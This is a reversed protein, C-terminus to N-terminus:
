CLYHNEIIGKINDLQYIFVNGSKPYKALDSQSLGQQASSVILWDLEPGGIAVCSPHPIPVDLTLNVKGNPAYRKVQAGGWQANWLYNDADICSGDPFHTEQTSVLEDIEALKTHATPVKYRKITHTLTDTHYFIGNHLDFCLSNSIKLGNLMAHCQQHEDILYLSGDNSSLTENEVMTGAWFRGQRDVRGDNFRNGLNDQEPRALWHVEKTELQYFAIGSAFAVILRNKQNTFAFSGVREPMEHTLITNSEPIYQYLLASMIDTWWISQSPNHWQIGEGLINQVSLEKLLKM